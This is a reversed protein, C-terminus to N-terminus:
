SADGKAEFPTGCEPCRPETLGTLNYGCHFCHSGDIRRLRRTCLRYEMAALLTAGCLVAIAAITSYAVAAGSDFFDPLLFLGLWSLFILSMLFVIIARHMPHVHATKMASAGADCIGDRVGSM